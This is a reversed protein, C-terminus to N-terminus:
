PPRREAEDLSGSAANYQPFVTGTCHVPPRDSVRERCPRTRFRADSRFTPFQAPRQGNNAPSTFLQDPEIAGEPSKVVREAVKLTALRGAVSLIAEHSMSPLSQEEREDGHQHGDTSRLREIGIGGLIGQAICGPVIKKQNGADGYLSWM